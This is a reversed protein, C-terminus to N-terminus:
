SLRSLQRYSPNIAPMLGIEDLAKRVFRGRHHLHSATNRNSRNTNM